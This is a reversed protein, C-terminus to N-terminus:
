EDDEYIEPIDEEVDGGESTMDEVQDEELIQNMESEDAVSEEPVVSATELEYADIERCRVFM